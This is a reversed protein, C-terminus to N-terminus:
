DIIRMLPSVSQGDWTFLDAIETDNCMYVVAFGGQCVADQLLGLRDGQAIHGVLEQVIHIQLALAANGDLRVGDGEDVPRVVALVIDEVQDVSGAM